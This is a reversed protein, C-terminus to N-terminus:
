CIRLLMTRAEDMEIVLLGRKELEKMIDSFKKFGIQREDFSPYDQQITSKLISPNVREFGEDKFHSLAQEFAHVWNSKDLKGEEDDETSLGIMLSSNEMWSTLKDSNRTLQAVLKGFTTCGFSKESFDPRLRTLTDKLESAYM